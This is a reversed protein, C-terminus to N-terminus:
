KGREIMAKTTNVIVSEEKVEKQAGKVEKPGIVETVEIAGIAETMVGIGIVVNGIEGNVMKRGAKKGRGIPSVPPESCSM